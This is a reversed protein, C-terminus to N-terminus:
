INYIFESARATTRQVDAFRVSSQKDACLFMCDRMVGSKCPSRKELTSVLRRGKKSVRFTRKASREKIGRTWNDMNINGSQTPKKRLFRGKGDRLPLQEETTLQM